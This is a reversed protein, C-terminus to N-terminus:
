TTESDSRVELIEKLKALNADIEETSQRSVRERGAIKFITKFVLKAIELQPKWHYRQRVRTAGNQSELVIEWDAKMWYGGKKLPFAATWALRRSPELATIEAETYGRGAIRRLVIEDIKRGIWPGQNPPQEQARYITGVDFPGESIKTIETPQHNWETHRTFDCLYEYVKDVPAQILIEREGKLVNSFSEGNNM